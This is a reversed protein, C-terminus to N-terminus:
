ITPSQTCSFCSMWHILHRVFFHAVVCDLWCRCVNLVTNRVSEYGASLPKKPHLRKLNKIRDICFLWSIETPRDKSIIKKRNKGKEGNKQPLWMLKKDEGDKQGHIQCSVTIKDLRCTPAWGLNKQLFIDIWNNGALQVWIAQILNAKYSLYKKPNLYIKSM